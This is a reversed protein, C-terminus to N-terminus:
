LINQGSDCSRIKQYPRVIVIGKLFRFHLHYQTPHSLHFRGLALEDVGNVVELGLWLPMDQTVPYGSRLGGTGQGWYGSMARTAYGLGTFGSQAMGLRYSPVLQIRRHVMAPQQVPTIWDWRCDM